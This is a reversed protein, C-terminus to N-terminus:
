GHVRRRAEDPKIKIVEGRIEKGSGFRETFIGLLWHLEAVYNPHVGKGEFVIDRYMREYAMDMDVNMLDFDDIHRSQKGNETVLGEFWCGYMRALDIYHIFLDFFLGGTLEPNGEWGNFYDDGRAAVIKVVDATKPLDLYRLQLVVFVDPSDIIPQWPLVYPKECIVKKGYGLCMKVYDYHTYTPSSIVVWDIADFFTEEIEGNCYIPDYSKLLVGGINSIALKHRKAIKGDGILGFKQGTM